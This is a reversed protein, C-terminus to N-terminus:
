AKLMSKPFFSQLDHSGNLTLTLALVRVSIMRRCIRVHLEGDLFCRDNLGPIEFPHCSAFINPELMGELRQHTIDEDHRNHDSKAWLLGARVVGVAVFRHRTWAFVADHFPGLVALLTQLQM